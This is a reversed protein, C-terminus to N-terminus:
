GVCQVYQVSYEVIGVGFSHHVMDVGVKAGMHADEALKSCAAACGNRQVQRPM